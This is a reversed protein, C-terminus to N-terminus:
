PRPRISVLLMRDWDPEIMTTAALLALAIGAVGTLIGPDDLWRDDGPKLPMWAAYGAIGREPHRMELTRRFWFRAADALQEDGTAQYLRNFLHGLGAAGHCLGADVVGAQDVPRAAARLAINRAAKEWAPEAVCRAALLLAAAIGPDGYCWALRAAKPPEVNESEIVHTFGSGDAPQQALLWRVAGDLLPRAMEVAVGAACARGLLAIVGPVGHALGLNYYGHPCKERTEPILWAPNTWWTLGDPRREVTETLRDIVRELCAVADPHPLRELAAVGLGVLGSILDYDEKWPSSGLHERLGADIDASVDELDLDAMLPRVHAMAWGVGALGDYLSAPLEAEAAAAVVKELLRRATAEHEPGFGSRALYAHFVAVGTAGSALTADAVRWSPLRDVIARVTELARDKLDGNLLPQWSDPAAPQGAPSNHGTREAKNQM